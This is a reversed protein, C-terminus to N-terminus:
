FLRLHGSLNVLINQSLLSPTISIALAEKRMRTKIVINDKTFKLSEPTSPAVPKSLTRLFLYPISDFTTNSLAPRSVERKFCSALTEKSSVQL